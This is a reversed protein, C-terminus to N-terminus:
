NFFSASHCTREAEFLIPLYIEAAAFIESQLLITPVSTMDANCVETEEDTLRRSGGYKSAFAGAHPLCLEGEAFM